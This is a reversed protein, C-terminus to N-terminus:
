KNNTRGNKFTNILEEAGKNDGKKALEIAQNIINKVKLVESKDNKPATRITENMIGDLITFQNKMEEIAKNSQEILEKLYNM